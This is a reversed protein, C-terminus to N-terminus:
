YSGTAAGNRIISVKDANLETLTIQSPATEYANNNNYAHNFRMTANFVGLRFSFKKATGVNTDLVTRFTAQFPTSDYNTEYPQFQLHRVSGSQNPAQVGSWATTAGDDVAVYLRGSGNHNSPEGFTRLEVMIKSNVQTTTINVDYQTAVGWYYYGGTNVQQKAYHEYHKTQLVGGQYLTEWTPTASTASLYKDTPNAPYPIKTFSSTSGDYMLMDGTSLGAITGLDSGQLMLDWYPSTGTPTGQVGFSQQVAVWANGNHNVVDDVAYINAVDWTGRWQFKIKGLDINTSM